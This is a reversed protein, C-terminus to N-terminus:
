RTGDTEPANLHAVIETNEASDAEDLQGHGRSVTRAATTTASPIGADSGVDARLSM